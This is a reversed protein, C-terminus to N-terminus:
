SEACARKEKQHCSGAHEVSMWASNKPDTDPAMHPRSIDFAEKLLRTWTGQVSLTYAVPLVLCTIM